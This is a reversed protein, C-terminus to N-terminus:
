LDPDSADTLSVVIATGGTILRHGSTARLICSLTREDQITHQQGHHEVHVFFNAVPISSLVLAPM